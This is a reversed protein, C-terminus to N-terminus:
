GDPSIVVLCIHGVSTNVASFLRDTAILDVLAGFWDEDTGVPVLEGIRLDCGDRWRLAPTRCLSMRNISGYEVMEVGTDVLYWSYRDLRM